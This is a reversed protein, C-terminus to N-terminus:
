RPPTQRHNTNEKHNQCSSHRVNKRPTRNHRTKCGFRNLLVAASSVLMLCVSAEDAFNGNVGCLLCRHYLITGSGAPMRKGLFRDLQFGRIVHQGDIAARFRGMGAIDGDRQRERLHHGTIGVIAQLGATVALPESGSGVSPNDNSRAVLHQGIHVALQTGRKRQFKGFKGANQRQLALIACHNTGGGNGSGIGQKLIGLQHSLIRLTGLTM